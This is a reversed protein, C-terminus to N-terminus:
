TEPLNMKKLLAKYRSDSHVRASLPDVRLREVLTAKRAAYAKNFWEFAQDLEGRYAYAQAIFDPWLNGNARIERALAADSESKRGQAHYIMALLVEKGDSVAVASAKTLAAQYQDCVLLSQAAFYHCEM